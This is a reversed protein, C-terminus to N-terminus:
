SNIIRAARRHSIALTRWQVREDRVREGSDHMSLQGNSGDGELQCILQMLYLRKRSLGSEWEGVCSPSVALGQDSGGVLPFSLGSRSHASRDRRRPRLVQDM